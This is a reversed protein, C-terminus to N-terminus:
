VIRLRPPTPAALEVQVRAWLGAICDSCLWTRMGGDKLGLMLPVEALPRACNLCHPVSPISKSM